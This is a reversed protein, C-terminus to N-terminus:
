LGPLQSAEMGASCLELASEGGDGRFFFRRRCWWGVGFSVRGRGGKVAGLQSAGTGFFFSSSVM